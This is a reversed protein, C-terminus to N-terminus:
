PKTTLKYEHLLQAWFQIMDMNSIKNFNIDMEFYIIIKRRSPEVFDNCSAVFSVERKVVGNITMISQVTLCEKFKPKNLIEEVDCFLKSYNIQKYNVTGDQYLEKIPSLARLAINKGTGQNGQYILVNDNIEETFISNISQLLFTKIKFYDNVNSTNLAKVYEMVYDQKKDYTPLSNLFQRATIM